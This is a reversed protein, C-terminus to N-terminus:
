ARTVDVIKGSDAETWFADVWICPSERRGICAGMAGSRIVVAGNGNPGVGMDLFRRCAEEVLDKNPEPPM